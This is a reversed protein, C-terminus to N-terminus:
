KKLLSCFKAMSSPTISWDPAKISGWAKPNDYLNFYCVGFVHPNANITKAADALWQDQFREPGKVGFETIFLPKDLFRMRFYKRNFINSFAEQKDPDTINKDPLGYIAISIYDVVDSGPWFDVSGRDGAPGWVKKINKGPGGNFQMFYRYAAIYTVPDQSQWAYRHIPIEMEHMWRLYVTQGTASIIGFLKKIQQDFTGNLIRELTLTDAKHAADKWPEMTVIVDHHRSTVELFKKEFDGREVEGFDTFLHEVGIAKQNLLQKNPDFVGIQLVKRIPKAKCSDAYNSDSYVTQRYKNIYKKQGALWSAQFARQSINGADVILVPKNIFRLRHLKQRLLGQPTKAPPYFNVSNESASGFTISVYDVYKNGPWYETDGPYGSPSWVIKANPAYQKLKKAFYNFSNIYAQPSQYQWPYFNTPVEMDPNWRIYARHPAKSIISSLELIQSDFKGKKLEALVNTNYNVGSLWTEVTLMVDHKALGTEIDGKDYWPATNRWIAKYSVINGPPLDVETNSANFIGILRENAPYYINLYYSRYLPKLLWLAVFLLAIGLGIFLYRKSRTNKL